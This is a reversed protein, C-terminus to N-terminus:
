RLCKSSPFRFARRGTQREAYITISSRNTSTVTHRTRKQFAICEFVMTSSASPKVNMELMELDGSAHAQVTYTEADYVFEGTIKYDKITLKSAEVKKNEDWKLKFTYHEKTIHQDLMNSIKTAFRFGMKRVHLGQQNCM